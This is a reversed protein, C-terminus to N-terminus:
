IVKTVLFTRCQAENQQMMQTMEEQNENNSNTENFWDSVGALCM